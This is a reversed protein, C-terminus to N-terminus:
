KIFVKSTMELSKELEKMNLELDKKFYSVLKETPINGTMDDKAMPCGGYGKLASDFRRCGNKYASKIKEKWKDTTTHFHAGFEINTYESILTKFLPNINAPNVFPEKIINFGSYIMSYLLYNCSFSKFIEAELNTLFNFLEFFNCGGGRTVFINFFLTIEQFFENFYM